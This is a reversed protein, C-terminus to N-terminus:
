LRLKIKGRRQNSINYEMEISEQSIIYIYIKPSIFFPFFYIYIYIKGRMM